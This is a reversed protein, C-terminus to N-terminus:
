ESEGKEHQEDMYPCRAFKRKIKAVHEKLIAGIKAAERMELRPPLANAISDLDGSMGACVQRWTIEVNAREVLQGEKIDLELQKSKVELELKKLLLVERSKPEGADDRGLEAWAKAFTKISYLDDRIPKIGRANILRHVNPKKLDFLTALDIQRALGELLHAPPNPEKATRPM